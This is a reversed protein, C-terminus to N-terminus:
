FHIVLQFCKVKLIKEMAEKSAKKMFETIAYEPKCLYSALYTLMAYVGRVFQLNM